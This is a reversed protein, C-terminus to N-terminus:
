AMDERTLRRLYDMDADQSNKAGIALVRFRRQQGRAYYIRGKGAFGLEFIHLHGPLGGVKRRVAVNEAEEGLRKLGEEAKLKMIEDKLAVMNAVARDDIELNKYLTRLRRALFDGSKSKSSSGAGRSASKLNKELDRIEDDKTSIDGAAEELLEELAQVEQTLSVAEEAKGRLEEERAALGTLKRQLEQREHQLGSIEQTLAREGPEVESLRRRTTELEQEIESARSATEDRISLADRLERTYRRQNSRNTVYLGWLLIATYGVLIGNALLSNHPVTVTVYATAPLLAVAQKLVDTPPLSNAQPQIQGEVYIWSVGDSGLVLSNVKIGGYKVWDSRTVAQEMAAQIQTAVPLDLNTISIAEDAVTQFHQDLLFEAIRVSSIYLILFVFVAIYILRFSRIRDRAFQGASRISGGILPADSDSATPETM